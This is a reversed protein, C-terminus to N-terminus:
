FMAKKRIERDRNSIAVRILVPVRNEEPLQSLAFIAQERVERDEDEDSALESLGEATKEGAARSVM